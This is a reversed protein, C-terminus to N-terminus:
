APVAQSRPKGLEFMRNLVGCGIMAERSQAGLHKSRLRDGFMWKWRFFANEARAQQRYGSEKLWARRGIEEIRELYSNRQSWAGEANKDPVASRRPPVVVVVGETGGGAVTDYVLRRDYAGDGTFRRVKADTQELLDPVVSADDKRRETLQAAVVFGDDDVGIHLKRWARRVKGKRHKRSSWGGAGSIKLGTSDVVLHIAGDHDRRLQPVEVDKSRRSLTSHDPARLELGMLRLLSGVFGETQRLPLHFVLRLTLSTLIALNSYQRQGGRLGSPPPIWAAVAEDTFWITVDGRARLAREYEPWNQVRYRTKYKPNVRSSKRAAM